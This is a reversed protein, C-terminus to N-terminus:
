GLLAHKISRKRGNPSAGRYQKALRLVGDPAVTPITDVVANSATDVVAVVDANDVAVFLRSQARNLIMKNPNGNVPIRKTVSVNALDVVVVERDRESSVYATRNGVISVADPYEGGATSPSGPRLDIDYLTKGGVLDVVTISANYRNAVVARTGDATVAVGQAMPGQLLGIGGLDVPDSPTPARMHGLSIPSKANEAWSTGVLDFVHLADDGGGSVVFRKGSPAFAIGVYTNPVKLVQRKKVTSGASVDFVFVYENSDAPILNGKNDSQYNYGSTLVLLTNRDPSLAESIPQGAVFSPNDPLGPNLMMFKSFPAATPTLLQGTPLLQGDYPAASASTAMAIALALGLLLERSPSNKNRM